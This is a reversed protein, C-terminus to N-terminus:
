APRFENWRLQHEPISEDAGDLKAFVFPPEFRLVEGQQWHHRKVPYDETVVIRLGKIQQNWKRWDDM